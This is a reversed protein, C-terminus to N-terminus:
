DYLESLHSYSSSYIVQDMQPDHSWNTSSSIISESSEKHHTGCGANIRKIESLRGSSTLKAFSNLIRTMLRSRPEKGQNASKLTRLVTNYGVKLVQGTDRLGAGNMAMDVIKEKVGPLCAEYAYDHLFSRKCESCRYRQIGRPNRGHKM